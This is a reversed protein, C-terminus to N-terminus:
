QIKLNLSEILLRKKLRSKQAHERNRERRNIREEYSLKKDM